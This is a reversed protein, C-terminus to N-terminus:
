ADHMFMDCGDSIEVKFYPRYQLYVVGMKKWGERRTIRERWQLDKESGGDDGVAV